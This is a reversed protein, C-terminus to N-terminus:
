IKDRNLDNAKSNECSRCVEILVIFKEHSHTNYNDSLHKPVITTLFIPRMLFVQM